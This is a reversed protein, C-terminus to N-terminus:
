IDKSDKTKVPVGSGYVDLRSPSYNINRGVRNFEPGRGKSRLVELTGPTRKVGWKEDLYQSAEKTNLRKEM